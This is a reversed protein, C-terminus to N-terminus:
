ILCLGAWFCWAPGAELAKTGTMDSMFGGLFVVGPGIGKSQAYAIRRGSDTTLFKMRVGLNSGSKIQVIPGSLPIERGQPALPKAQTM